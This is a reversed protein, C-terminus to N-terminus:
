GADAAQQAPAMTATEGFHAGISALLRDRVSPADMLTEHRGGEVMTLRGDPWEAMRARIADPDVIAEDTGLVTLCPLSAPSPIDRVEAMERLAARLWSLTPGALALDPHTVAQHRMWEFMARDNTLLNGEFAVGAPDVAAGSGPVARLGLGLAAGAHSVSWALLRMHPLLPLGWLPASFAVRAFTVGRLCARLGILGGMSHALLHFPAPMGMARVAAVYADVDHQYDGFDQVHGLQGGARETLGQGRWDIATASYGQAVLARAVMSYKEVYETRGPFILVTGRDGGPWAGVRVEVGDSAVSWVARGVLGEAAVDALYPADRM